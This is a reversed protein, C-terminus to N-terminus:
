TAPASFSSALTCPAGFGSGSGTTPHAAGICRRRFEAPDGSIVDSLSMPRRAETPDSAPEIDDSADSTTPTLERLHVSLMPLKHPLKRAVVLVPSDTRPPRRSDESHASWGSAMSGRM